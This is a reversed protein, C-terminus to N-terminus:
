LLHFNKCIIGIVDDDDENHLGLYNLILREVPVKQVIERSALNTKMALHRYTFGLWWAVDTNMRAKVSEISFVLKKKEIEMDIFDMSQLAPQLHLWSYSSDMERACFDSNMYFTVFNEFKTPSMQQAYKEFIKGQTNCIMRAIRDM